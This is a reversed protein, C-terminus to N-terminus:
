ARVMRFNADSVTMYREIPYTQVRHWTWFKEVLDSIDGPDPVEAEAGLASVIRNRVSRVNIEWEPKDLFFKTRSSM